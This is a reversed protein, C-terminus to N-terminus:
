KKKKKAFGKGSKKGFGGDKKKGFTKGSHKGCGGDEDWDRRKRDRRSDYPPLEDWDRRKEKKKGDFREKYYEDHHGRRGSREKKHRFINVQEEDLETRSYRRKDFEDFAMGFLVAAVDEVSYQPRNGGQIKLIEDAEEATVADDAPFETKLIAEIVPLYKQYRGKDLKTQVRRVAMEVRVQEVDAITPAKM